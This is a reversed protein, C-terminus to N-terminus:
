SSCNKLLIIPSPSICYVFILTLFAGQGCIQRELGVVYYYDAAAAPQVFFSMANTASYSEPKLNPLMSTLMMPLQPQNLLFHCLM